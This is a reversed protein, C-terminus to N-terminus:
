DKRAPSTGDIGHWGLVTAWLGERQLLHVIIERVAGNGGLARTVYAAMAKLEPCANAVAVPFGCRKLVAVDGLDDGVCCISGDEIQLEEKLAEYAALKDQQRQFCHVIGLEAARAAVAESQRGSIIAVTKGLRPFWRIAQGDQVDFTKIERGDADLTIRGDTMVGDVDLVLLRCPQMMAPGRADPADFGFQRM